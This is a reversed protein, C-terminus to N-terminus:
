CDELHFTVRLTISQGGTLADILRRQISIQQNGDFAIQHRRQEFPVNMMTSGNLVSCVALRHSYDLRIGTKDDLRVDYNKSNANAVETFEVAAVRKNAPISVTDTGTDGASLAGTITIDKNLTTRM